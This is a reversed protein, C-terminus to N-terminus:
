WPEDKTPQYDCIANAYTAKCGPPVQTKSIYFITNTGTPMQAGVGQSLRGLKNAMSTTWRTPDSM